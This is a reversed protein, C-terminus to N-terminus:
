VHRITQDQEQTMDQLAQYKTSQAGALMVIEFFLKPVQDEVFNDKDKADNVNLIDLIRHTPGKEDREDSGQLQCSLKTVFPM